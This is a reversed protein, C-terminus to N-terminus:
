EAAIGYAHRLLVIPHVAKKHLGEEIRLGSLPCDTAFHEAGSAGLADLLKKAVQMSADHFKAQMGWTGDVGSCADILTVEDAVLKLVDRSRFGINQARLHCPAHYAVHGLRQQFDRKLKKARALEVVYEMLDRTAAAVKQAAEGPVLKPYEHKLMLSCSPGPAVITAGAEALPLLDAVNQAANRRASDLDGVDTFPMGCCREYAVDVRVGSHELVAVASRAAVPDSYNVFCTTFLVARGNEGSGKAGGRRKWWRDVTEFYYSPQVWDRHIGVTKEMAIRSLRNTNAFNMLPPALSAVKGLLDTQTTLKRTLPVGDRQARAQQHRRMLLPFDIDWEHPTTPTYPCHNYCLKCHYCLENVADFGAITVGAIEHESADILDFLRPFSPCLPLCRRCQHCVEGARRLEKEVKALDAFDPDDYSLSTSPREPLDVKL